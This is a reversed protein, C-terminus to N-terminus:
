TTRGLALCLSHLSSVLAHDGDAIAKRMANRLTESVAPGYLTDVDVHQLEDFVKHQIAYHERMVDSLKTHGSEVLQKCIAEERGTLTVV